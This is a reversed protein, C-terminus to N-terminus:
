ESRNGSPAISLTKNYENDYLPSVILPVQLAGSTLIRVIGALPVPIPIHIRASYMVEYLSQIEQCCICSAEGAQRLARYILYPLQIEYYCICAHYSADGVGRYILWPM